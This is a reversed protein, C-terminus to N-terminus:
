RLKHHPLPNTAAAADKLLDIRTDLDIAETTFDRDVEDILAVFEDYETKYARQNEETADIFTSALEPSEFSEITDTLNAIDAAVSNTRPMHTSASNNTRVM